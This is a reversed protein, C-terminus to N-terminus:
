YSCVHNPFPNLHAIRREHLRSTISVLARCYEIPCDTRVETKDHHCESNYEDSGESENSACVQLPVFAVKVVVVKGPLSQVSAMKKLTKM